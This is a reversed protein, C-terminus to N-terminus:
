FRIIFRRWGSEADNWSRYFKRLRLHLAISGAGAAILLGALFVVVIRPEILIVWGLLILFIGTWM